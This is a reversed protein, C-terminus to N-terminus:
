IIPVFVKFRLDFTFITVPLLFSCLGPRHSHVSLLCLARRILVATAKVVDATSEKHGSNTLYPMIFKKFKSIKQEAMRKETHGSADFVDFVLLDKFM